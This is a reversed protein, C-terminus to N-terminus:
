KLYNKKAELHNISKQGVLSSSKVGARCGEGVLRSASMVPFNEIRSFQRVFVHCQIVHEWVVETNYDHVQITVLLLSTM